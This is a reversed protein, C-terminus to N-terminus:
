TRVSPNLHRNKQLVWIMAPGRAEDFPSRQYDGYLTVVRFGAEEAMARFAIGEILEFQM